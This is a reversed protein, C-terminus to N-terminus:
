DPDKRNGEEGIEEEALDTDGDDDFSGAHLGSVLVSAEIEAPPSM